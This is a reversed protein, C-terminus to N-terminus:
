VQAQQAPQLDYPFSRKFDNSRYIQQIDLASPNPILTKIRLAISHPIFDQNIKYEPEKVGSENHPEIDLSIKSLTKINRVILAKQDMQQEMQKQQKNHMKQYHGQYYHNNPTPNPILGVQNLVNEQNQQIVRQIKSKFNDNTIGQIAKKSDKRSQPRSQRVKAM